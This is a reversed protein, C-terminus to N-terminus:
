YHVTGTAPDYTGVAGGAAGGMPNPNMIQQRQQNIQDLQTKRRSDVESKIDKLLTKQHAAVWQPDGLLSLRVQQDFAKSNTQKLQDDLPKIAEKQQPTMGGVSSAQGLPVLNTTDMGPRLEVTKHTTKDVMLAQQERQPREPMQSKDRWEKQWAGIENSGPMTGQHTDMYETQKADFFRKAPDLEAMKSAKPSFMPNPTLNTQGTTNDTTAIYPDMQSVGFSRFDHDPRGLKQNEARLHEIDAAQLDRHQQRDIIGEMMNAAQFPREFQKNIMGQRAMRGEILGGAVNSIGEGWTDAGRTAAAGFLGGELMGAVKPHRGFFGTNPLIANPNVDKPAIPSLGYQGLYSQAAQRAAPDYTFQSYDPQGAEQGLMSSLM